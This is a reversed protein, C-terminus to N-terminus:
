AVNTFFGEEVMHPFSSNFTAVIRARVLVLDNGFLMEWVVLHQTVLSTILNLPMGVDRLADNSVHLYTSDTATGRVNVGDSDALIALAWISM